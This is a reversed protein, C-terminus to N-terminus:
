RTKTAVFSASARLGRGARGQIGIQPVGGMPGPAEGIRLRTGANLRHCQGSCTCRALAAIKVCWRAADARVHRRNVIRSLDLALSTRIGSAGLDM